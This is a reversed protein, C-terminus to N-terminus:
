DCSEGPTKHVFVDLVAHRLVFTLMPFSFATTILPKVQASGLSKATVKVDDDEISDSFEDSSGEEDGEEEETSLELFLIFFM